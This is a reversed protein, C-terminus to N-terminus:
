NIRVFSGGTRHAEPPVGGNGWSTYFYGTNSYDTNFFELMLYARLSSATIEIEQCLIIRIQALQTQNSALVPYAGTYMSTFYDSSNNSPSLLGFIAQTTGTRTLELKAGISVLYRGPAPFDIYLNSYVVTSAWSASPETFESRVRQYEVVTYGSFDVPAWHAFGNTDSTLAYDEAESGDQLRFGAVPISLNLKDQSDIHLRVVPNLLGIGVRGTNDIVVDDSVEIDSDSTSATTNAGGDIHLLRLPNHTNIGVVQASLYNDILLFAIILIAVIYIKNFHIM